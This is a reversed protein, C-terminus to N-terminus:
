PEGAVSKERVNKPNTIGAESLVLGDSLVLAM